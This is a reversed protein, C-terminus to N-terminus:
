LVKGSLFQRLDVENRRKSSVYVFALNTREGIMEGPFPLYSLELSGFSPSATGIQWETKVSVDVLKLDPGGHNCPIELPVNAIKLYAAKDKADRFGDIFQACLVQLDAAEDEPKFHSHLHDAAHNHGIHGNVIDHPM